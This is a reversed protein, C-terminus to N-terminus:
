TGDKGRRRRSCRQFPHLSAVRKFAQSKFSCLSYGPWGHRGSSFSLRRCGQTWQTGQANDITVSVGDHRFIDTVPQGDEKSATYKQGSISIAYVEDGVISVSKLKHQDAMNLVDSIPKDVTNNRGATVDVFRLITLTLLLAGLLVLLASISYRVLRIRKNTAKQPGKPEQNDGQPIKMCHQQVRRHKLSACVYM